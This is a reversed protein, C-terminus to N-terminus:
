TGGIDMEEIDAGTFAHPSTAGAAVKTEYLKSHLRLDSDLRKLTQAREGIASKIESVVAKLANWELVAERLDALQDALWAGKETLETGRYELSAKLRKEEVAFRINLSGATKIVPLSVRSVQMMIDSSTELLASCKALKGSIYILDYDAQDDSLGLKLKEADDLLSLLREEIGEPIETLKLPTV